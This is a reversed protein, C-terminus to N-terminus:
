SESDSPTRLKQLREENGEPRVLPSLVEDNECREGKGLVEELRLRQQTGGRGERQKAAKRARDIQEVVDGVDLAVPEV